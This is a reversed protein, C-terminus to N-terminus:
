SLTWWEKWRDACSILLIRLSMSVNFSNQLLMASATWAEAEWLAFSRESPMSARLLAVPWGIASSGLLVVGRRSVTTTGCNGSARRLLVCEVTSEAQGPRTDGELAVDERALVLACWGSVDPQAKM